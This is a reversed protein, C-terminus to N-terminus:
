NDNMLRSNLKLNYLKPFDAINFDNYLFLFLLMCLLYKGPFCCSLGMFYAIIYGVIIGIFLALSFYIIKKVGGVRFVKIIRIFFIFDFAFIVALVILLLEIKMTSKLLANFSVYNIKFFANNDHLLAVAKDFYFELDFINDPPIYKPPIYLNFRVLNFIVVILVFYSFIIGISIGISLINDKLL